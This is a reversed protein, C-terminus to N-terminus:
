SRRVRRGERGNAPPTPRPPPPLPSLPPPPGWAGVGEPPWPGGGGGAWGGGVGGGAVRQARPPFPVSLGGGEGGWFRRRWPARTATAGVASTSPTSSNRSIATSPPPSRWTSPM